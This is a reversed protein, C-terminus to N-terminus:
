WHVGAVKLLVVIVIALVVLWVLQELGGGWHGTEIKPRDAQCAACRKRWGFPAYGCRECPGDMWRRGNQKHLKLRRPPPASHDPLWPYLAGRSTM